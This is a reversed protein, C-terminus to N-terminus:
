FNLNFSYTGLVLGSTITQKRNVSEEFQSPRTYEIVRGKNISLINNISDSFSKYSCTIFFLHLVYVLLLVEGMMLVWLLQVNIVTIMLCDILIGVVLHVVGLIIHVIRLIM